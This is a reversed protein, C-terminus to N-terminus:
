PATGRMRTQRRIRVSGATIVAFARLLEETHDQIATAVIAAKRTPSLGALRILIIGTTLRNQRFVLEGFDRDATLLLAAERNARDLVV